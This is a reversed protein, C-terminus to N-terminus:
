TEQHLCQNVPQFMLQCALIDGKRTSLMRTSPLIFCSPINQGGPSASGMESSCSCVSLIDEQSSSLPSNGLPSTSAGAEPIHVM